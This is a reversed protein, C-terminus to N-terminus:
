WMAAPMRKSAPSCPISQGDEREKPRDRSPSCLPPYADLCSSCLRPGCGRLANRRQACTAEGPVRHHSLSQSPPAYGQTEYLYSKTAISRLPVRQVSSPMVDPASRRKPLHPDASATEFSSARLSCLALRSQCACPKPPRRPTAGRDAFAFKARFASERPKRGSWRRLDVIGLSVKALSLSGGDTPGNEGATRPAPSAM